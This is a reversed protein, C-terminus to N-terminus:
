AARTPKAHEGATNFKRTAVAAKRCAVSGRLRGDEIRALIEDGIRLLKAASSHKEAGRDIAWSRADIAERVEEQLCDDLNRVWDPMPSYNPDRRYPMHGYRKRLRHTPVTPVVSSYSPSSPAGPRTMDHCSKSRADTRSSSTCLREM